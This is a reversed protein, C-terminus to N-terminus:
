MTGKISDMLVHFISHIKSLVESPTMHSRLRVKGILGVIGLSIRYKRRPFGVYNGGQCAYLM